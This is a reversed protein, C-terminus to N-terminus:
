HGTQSDKIAKMKQWLEFDHYDYCAEKKDAPVCFAYGKQGTTPNKWNTQVRYSFQAEYKNKSGDILGIVPNKKSGYWLMVSQPSGDELKVDFAANTVATGTFCDKGFCETTMTKGSPMVTTAKFDPEATVFKITGVHDYVKPAEKGAFCPFAMLMLSAFFLRKM